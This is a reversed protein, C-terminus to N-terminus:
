RYRKPLAGGWDFQGGAATGMFPLCNQSFHTTNCSQEMAVSIVVEVSRGISHMESLIVVVLQLLTGCPRLKGSPTEPRQV